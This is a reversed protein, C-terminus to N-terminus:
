QRYLSRWKPRPSNMYVIDSVFIDAQITAIVVPLQKIIGLLWPCTITDRCYLRVVTTIAYLLDMHSSLAISLLLIPVITHQPMQLHLFNLQPNFFLTKM